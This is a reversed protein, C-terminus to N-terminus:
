RNRFIADTIPQGCEDCTLVGANLTSSGKHQCEARQELSSKAAGRVIELLENSATVVLLFITVNAAIEVDDGKDLAKAISNAAKEVNRFIGAFRKRERNNLDLEILPPKM